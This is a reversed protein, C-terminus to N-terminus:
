PFTSVRVSLRLNSTVTLERHTPPSMFDILIFFASMYLEFGHRIATLRLGSTSRQGKLGFGHRTTYGSTQVLSLKLVKPDNTKSNHQPCVSLCVSLRVRIEGVGVSM